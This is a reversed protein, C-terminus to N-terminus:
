SHSSFPQRTSLLEVFRTVSRPVWCTRGKAAPPLHRRRPACCARRRAGYMRLARAAAVGGCGSRVWANAGRYHTPNTPSPLAASDPPPPRRRGTILCTFHTQSSARRGLPWGTAGAAGSIFQFCRQRRGSEDGPREQTATLDSALGRPDKRGHGSHAQVLALHSETVRRLSRSRRPPRGPGAAAHSPLRPSHLACQQAGSSIREAPGLRRRERRGGGAAAPPRSAPRSAALRPQSPAPCSGTQSQPSNGCPPPLLRPRGKFCSRGQFSSCRAVGEQLLAQLDAGTPLSGSGQVEPQVAPADM